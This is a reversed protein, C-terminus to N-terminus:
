YVADHFWVALEVRPRAEEDPADLEALVAALHDLNHYYRGPDAYAKVLADFTEAGSRAPVGLSALTREWRARLSDLAAVPMSFSRCRPRLLLYLIGSPSAPPRVRPGFMRRRLRLLAPITKSNRAARQVLHPRPLVM